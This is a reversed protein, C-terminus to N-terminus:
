SAVISRGVSSQGPVLKKSFCIRELAYRSNLWVTLVPNTSEESDVESLQFSIQKLITLDQHNGLM